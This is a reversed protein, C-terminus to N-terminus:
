VEGRHARKYTRVAHCNACVLECKAIEKLISEKSFRRVMNSVDMAKTQGPLHDWEMAAPHFVSGCDTCPQGDKLSRLWAYNAKEWDVRQRLRLARKLLYRAASVVKVCAKCWVQHGDRASRYFDELPKVEQCKTCTKM